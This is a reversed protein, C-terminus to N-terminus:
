LDNPLSCLALSHNVVLVFPVLVDGQQQLRLVTVPTRDTHHRSGGEKRGGGKGGWEWIEPFFPLAGRGKEEKCGERM